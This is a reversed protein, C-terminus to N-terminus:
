GGEELWRLLAEESGALGMGLSLLITDLRGSEADSVKPRLFPGDAGATALGIFFVATLYKKTETLELSELVRRVQAIRAGVFDRRGSAAQLDFQAATEGFRESLRFLAQRVVHGRSGELIRQFVPEVNTEPKTRRGDVFSIEYNVALLFDALGDKEDDKLDDWSKSGERSTLENM